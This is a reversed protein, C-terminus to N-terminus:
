KLESQLDPKGSEFGLDDPLVFSDTLGFVLKTLFVELRDQPGDYLEVLAPTKYIKGLCRRLLEDCKQSVTAAQNALKASLRDGHVTKSRIAYAMKATTYIDYEGDPYCWM